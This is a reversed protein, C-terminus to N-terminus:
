YLSTLQDSLDVGRMHSNYFQIAEPCSLKIKTEDKGTRSIEVSENGHCNSFVMVKKTDMWLYGTTGNNNHMSEYKGRERKRKEFQLMNKRTSICTGVAAFPLTYLLYVSRFFRDFCFFVDSERATSTLKKVVRESVTGENAESDKGSYIDFDYVYGKFKAMSKDVSQHSSESRVQAYTKKLCAVVDEIYYLKNCDDPKKPENFYLKSALLQFRDRSIALKIAENGLSKNSSWYHHIAPVKNYAMTFYCGVLIMIEHADTRKEKRNTAQELIELRWNTCQAIYQFLNKPFLKSFNDLESSDALIICAKDDPIKMRHVFQDDVNHWGVLDRKNAPPNSPPINQLADDEKSSEFDSSNPPELDSESSELYESESDEYPEVGSEFDACFTDALQQIEEKRLPRKRFVLIM